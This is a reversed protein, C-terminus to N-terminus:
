TVTFSSLVSEETTMTGRERGEGRRGGGRGEGRREEWRRGPQVAMVVNGPDVREQPVEPCCQLM